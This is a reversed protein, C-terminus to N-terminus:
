QKVTKGLVKEYVALITSSDANGMGMKRAM